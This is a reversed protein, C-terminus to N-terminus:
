AEYIVMYGNEIQVIALVTWGHVGLEVAHINAERENPHTFTNM